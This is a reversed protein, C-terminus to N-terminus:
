NDVTLYLKVDLMMIYYVYTFYKSLVVNYADGLGFESTHKLSRFM